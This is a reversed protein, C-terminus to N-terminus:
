GNLEYHGLITLCLKFIKCCKSCSKLVTDSWKTVNHMLPDFDHRIYIEPIINVTEMLYKKSM